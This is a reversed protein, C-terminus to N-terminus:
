RKARKAPAAKRDEEEDDEDDEDEEEDDEEEDKAEEEVTEEFIGQKRLETTQFEKKIPARMLVLVGLLGTPLFTFCAAIAGAMALGYNELKKMAEAGALVLGYVMLMPVFGATSVWFVYTPNTGKDWFESVPWVYNPLNKATIKQGKALIQDMQHNLMIVAFLTFLYSFILVLAQIMTIIKIIKAPPGIQEWASNRKKNRQLDRVMADVRDEDIAAKDVPGTDQTFGYTAIDDAGTAATAAPVNELPDPKAKKAAKPAPKPAAAPVKFTANCSPCKAMKGAVDDQLGLVKSCQPCKVRLM